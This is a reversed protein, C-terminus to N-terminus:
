RDEADSRQVHVITFPQEAGWPTTHTRRESLRLTWSDAGLASVLTPGDYRQVPLGSCQEPGDEAFTAVIVHGGPAVNARMSDLYAQRDAPSTLFHFVARDHWVQVPERSRFTRADAVVFNVNSGAAGLRTRTVGLATASLDVATIHQYGAGVLADILVSSGSGMDVIPSELGVGTSTILDYWLADPDQWWSVGNTPKTVYSTEWHESEATSSM